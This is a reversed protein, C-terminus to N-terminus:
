LRVAAGLGGDAGANKGGFPNVWATQFTLKRLDM